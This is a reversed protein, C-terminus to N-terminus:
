AGPQAYCRVIKLLADTCFPKELAHRVGRPAAVISASVSCVPIERLLPDARLHEMLQWGNMRPMMLDLLILAPQPEDSRLLELAEKGDCAITVHVGELRLLEAISERILVDDDVVLVHGNRV